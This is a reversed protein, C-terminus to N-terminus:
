REMVNLWRIEDRLAWSVCSAIFVQDSTLSTKLWNWLFSPFSLTPDHKMYLLFGLLRQELSLKLPHGSLVRIAGKSQAHAVITLCVLHCLKAFEPISFNTLIKFLSPTAM